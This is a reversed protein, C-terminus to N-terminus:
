AAPSSVRRIWQTRDSCAWRRTTRSGSSIGCASGATRRIRSVSSHPASAIAHRAGRSSSSASTRTQSPTARASVSVPVRTVSIAAAPGVPPGAATSQGVAGCEDRSASRSPPRTAHCVVTGSPASIAVSAAGATRCTTTDLRGRVSTDDGSTAHITTGSAAHVEASGANGAGARIRSGNGDPEASLRSPRRRRARSRLWSIRLSRVIKRWTIDQVSPV